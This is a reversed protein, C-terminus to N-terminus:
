FTAIKRFYKNERRRSRARGESGQRSSWHVGYGHRTGGM